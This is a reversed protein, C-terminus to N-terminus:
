TPPRQDAQSDIENARNRRRLPIVQQIAQYLDQRRMPKAVYGDMGAAMCAERDGKLAHATLAVIPLHAGSFQERKRIAATAEFGNMVPMQIDMLVLDFEEHELVNLAERGDSVAQVHFGWKTLLGVALRQNMLGDEVVLIKLGAFRDTAFPVSADSRNALGIGQPTEPHSPVTDFRATFFFTSGRGVESNVGIKGGMLEILRTCIALGLGTGGYRRTASTDAQTFAEFIAAQKEEPVGIGTDKVECRLQVSGADRSLCAVHVAVTGHETFKVANGVLNVLIQRLRGADGVLIDPVDPEIRCTLELGGTQARHALSNIAEGVVDRLDFPAPLLELKGAEIKSFDLVENIVSLLSEASKLVMRLQERQADALNTDLVMETMGIVTNMPTRIEHSMNALFDSKARNASEAVEKAHRLEAEARKRRSIDRVLGHLVQVGRIEALSLSVEAPFQTGDMQRHQWEFFNSGDSLARTLLEAAAGRSDRGDPQWPSSLTCFDQALLMRKDPYGFMRVAARNCDVCHGSSDLTVIADRSSEFLLRFKEESERLVAELRKRETIDIMVTLLYTRGQTSIVEGSFLGDLIVGDKRRVRLEVHDVHGTVVIREAVSRQEEPDAFMELEAPTRGIVEDMTRGLTDVFADNVDIFRGDPVSTIAMLDPHKRFLREFRQQAEKEASLDVSAGFICDTGNWRGIWIRTDVPLYEGDKRVMPLPCTKRDGRLMASFVALADNRMEKPHLELVNMAALDEDTFGLKEKLARNAFLIRGDLSLVVILYDITAFFARFNTESERLAEETQKRRTINLATSRTKICSGRDDLECEVTMLVTLASGNKRRMDWEMSSSTGSRIMEPYLQEFLEASQPMMLDALRLRNEVEERTYGLWNLETDNMQLVRGDPTLSHYGCPANHYLDLAEATRQRVRQELEANLEILAAEAQKRETVDMWIGVLRVATGTSDYVPQAANCFWRYSGDPMQWRYERQIHGGGIPRESEATARAADDPHLRRLWTDRSSLFESQTIGMVQSCNPSVYNVRGEPPLDSAYVVVPLSALILALQENTQRLENEMRKRTTLDRVVGLLLTEGAVHAARWAVEVPFVSGDRRRHRTEFLLGGHEAQRLQQQLEALEEARLDFITKNLLEDRSYGYATCAARNVELIQGDKPRVFLIMDHAHESLLRFKELAEKSKAHAARTRLSAIGFALDDALGTLLAVEDADFADPLAAYVSLAGLVDSGRLLPFAAMSAYGRELAADRWPAMKPDTTINRAVIPKGTRISTGVPGRGRETDAWTIGANELYGDEIGAQAAPLVSKKADEGRLGVWSMRYGGQKVLIRCVQDVLEQEQNARIMAEGCENRARLARNLRRFDEEARRREAIDRAIGRVHTARGSSDTVLTTSLETPVTSGDRHRQQIEFTRSRASEDGAALAALRTSLSEEVILSSEPTVVDRLTLNQAETATYGLVGEVSPSVYTFRRAALDFIWIVDRGSEALLRYREESERLQSQWAHSGGGHLRRLLGWILTLLVGGAIGGAILLYPNTQRLMGSEKITGSAMRGIRAARV